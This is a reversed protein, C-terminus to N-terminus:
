LGYGSSSLRDNEQVSIIDSIPTDNFVAYCIDFGKQRYREDICRNLHSAYTQQCQQLGERKAHQRLANIEEPDKAKSVANQFEKEQEADLLHLAGRQVEHQLYEEIPYLFLFQKDM